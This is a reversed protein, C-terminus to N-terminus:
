LALQWGRSAIVGWAMGPADKKPRDGILRGIMM